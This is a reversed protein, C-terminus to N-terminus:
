PPPQLVKGPLLRDPDPGIVARNTSWWDHVAVAVEAASPARGHEDLLRAEAISWLSDGRVVVHSGLPHAPATDPV